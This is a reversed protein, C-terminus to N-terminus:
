PTEGLSILQQDYKLMYMVLEKMKLHKEEFYKRLQAKHQVVQDHDITDRKEIRNTRNKLPAVNKWNFCMKVQNPDALDWKSIPIVHDFDWFTGHNNWNMDSTFNYEVWDVEDIVKHREKEKTHFKPDDHYRSTYKNQVHVKNQQYWDAQLKHIRDLHDQWYKQRLDQHERNYERGYKRECELCEGRNIRFDAVTKEQQCNPCFKPKCRLQPDSMMIKEKEKNAANRQRQEAKVCEKCKLNIRKYFESSAKTQGCVACHKQDNTTQPQETAAPKIKIQIKPKSM